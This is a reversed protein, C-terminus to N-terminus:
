PRAEPPFLDPVSASSPEMSVTYWPLNDGPKSVHARSVTLIFGNGTLVRKLHAGETTDFVLAGLTVTADLFAQQCAKSEEQALGLAALAQDREKAAQAWARVAHDRDAATPPAPVFGKGHCCGCRTGPTESPLNNCFPCEVFRPDTM